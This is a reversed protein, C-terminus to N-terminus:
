SIWLKLHPKIALSSCEGTIPTTESASAEVLHPIHEMTDGVSRNFPHTNHTIAENQFCSFLSVTAAM